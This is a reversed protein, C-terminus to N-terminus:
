ERGARAAAGRRGRRGRACPVLLAGIEEFRLVHVARAVERALDAAGILMTCRDLRSASSSTRRWRRACSSASRRRSTGASGRGRRRRRGCAYEGLHIRRNAAAGVDVGHPFADGVARDVGDAGIVHRALAAGLFALADPRRAVAERPNRRHQRDHDVLAIVAAADRGLADCGHQRPLAARM